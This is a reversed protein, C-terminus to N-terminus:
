ELELEFGFRNLIDRFQILEYGSLMFTGNTLRGTKSIELLEKGNVNNRFWTEALRHFMTKQLWTKVDEVTLQKLLDKASESCSDSSSSSSSPIKPPSKSSKDQKFTKPCQFLPASPRRNDRQSYSQIMFIQKTAQDLMYEHVVNLDITRHCHFELVLSIRQRWEVFGYISHRDAFSKLQGRIDYTNIRTMTYSLTTGWCDHEPLDIGYFLAESYLDRVSCPLIDPVRTQSLYDMLCVFINPNRDVHYCGDESNPPDSIFRLLFQSRSITMKAMEFLTGRVFIKVFGQLDVKVKKNDTSEETGVTDDASIDHKEGEVTSLEITDVM